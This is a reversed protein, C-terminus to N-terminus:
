VRVRLRQWYLMWVFPAGAMAMLWVLAASAAAFRPPALPPSGASVRQTVTVTAATTETVTVTFAGTPQLTTPAVVQTYGKASCYATLVSVATSADDINSCYSMVGQSLKPIAEWGRLDKWGSVVSFDIADPDVAQAVALLPGTFLLFAAYLRLAM